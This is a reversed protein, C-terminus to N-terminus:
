NGRHWIEYAPPTAKDTKEPHCKVRRTEYISGSSRSRHLSYAILAHSRSQTGAEVVRGVEGQAAGMEATQGEHFSSRQHSVWPSSAAFESKSARTRPPPPCAQSGLTSDIVLVESSCRWGPGAPLGGGGSPTGSAWPPHRRHKKEKPLQTLLGWELQLVQKVLAGTKDSVIHFLM